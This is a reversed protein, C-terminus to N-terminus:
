AGGSKTPTSSPSALSAEMTNFFSVLQKDSSIWVCITRRDQYDRDKLRVPQPDDVELDRDVEVGMGELWAQARRRLEDDSLCAM